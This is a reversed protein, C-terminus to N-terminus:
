PVYTGTSHDKYSARKGRCHCPMTSAKGEAPSAKRQFWRDTESIRQAERTPLFFPTLISSSNYDTLPHKAIGSELRLKENQKELKEKAMEEERLM